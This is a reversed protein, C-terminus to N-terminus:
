LHKSEAYEKLSVMPNLDSALMFEVEPNGAFSKMIHKEAFTEKDIWGAVLVNRFRFVEKTVRDDTKPNFITGRYKHAGYSLPLVLIIIDAKFRGPRVKLDLQSYKVDVALGNYVLDYGDDGELTNEESISSRLLKAVAREAKLGVYHMEAGSMQKDVSQTKVGHKEKNTNREEALAYLRDLEAEAFGVPIKRM